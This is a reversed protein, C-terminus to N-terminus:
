LSQGAVIGSAFARADNLAASNLGHSAIQVARPPELVAAAAEFAQGFAGALELPIAIVDGGKIWIRINKFTRSPEIIIRDGDATILTTKMTPVKM